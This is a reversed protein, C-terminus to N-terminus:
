TNIFKRWVGNKEPVIIFESHDQQVCVELAAKGLLLPLDENVPQTQGLSVPLNKFAELNKSEARLNAKRM